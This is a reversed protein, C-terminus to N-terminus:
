YISAFFISSVYSVSSLALNAEPELPLFGDVASVFFTRKAFEDSMM